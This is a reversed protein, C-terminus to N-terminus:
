LSATPPRPRLHPRPPRHCFAPFPKLTHMHLTSVAERSPISHSHYVPLALRPLSHSLHRADKGTHTYAPPQSNRAPSRHSRVRHPHGQPGRAPAGPRGCPSADRSPGDRQRASPRAEHQWDTVGIPMASVAWRSRLVSHYQLLTNYDNPLGGLNSAVFAQTMLPVLAACARFPACQVAAAHLKVNLRLMNGNRFEASSLTPSRQHRSTPMTM